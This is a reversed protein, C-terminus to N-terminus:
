GMGYKERKKQDLEVRIVLDNPPKMDKPLEKKVAHRWCLRRERINTFVWEPLPKKGKVQLHYQTRTPAYPVPKKYTPTMRAKAM